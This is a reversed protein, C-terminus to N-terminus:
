EVYNNGAAKKLWYLGDIINKEVGDGELFILALIHQAKSYNQNASKTLWHIARQMNIPLGDGKICAIGFNYQGIKDGELAKTLHTQAPEDITTLGMEVEIVNQEDKKFFLRGIVERIGM